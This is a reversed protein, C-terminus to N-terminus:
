QLSQTCNTGGTPDAKFENSEDTCYGKDGTKGIELPVATLKYSAYTDHGKVNLKGGCTLNFTYGSKEGTSALAPNILQAAQPTAPGSAPDGGLMSLPCAFGTDPYTLNYTIEASAITRMTQIASTQNAVKKVKAMQPVSVAAVIFLLILLVVMCGGAIAIWFWISKRAPKPQQYAPYPTLPPPPTSLDETM